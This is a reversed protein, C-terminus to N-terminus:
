CASRFADAGLTSCWMNLAARHLRRRGADFEHERQRLAPFEKPFPLAYIDGQVVHLNPYHKLNAYCADVARSYDLAIVEAGAQLAVEAFRGAGSGADLVWQGALDTPSPTPTM